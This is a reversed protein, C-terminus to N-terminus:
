SVREVLRVGPEVVDLEQNLAALVEVFPRHSEILKANSVGPDLPEIVGRVRHDRETIRVVDLELEEPSRRTLVVRIDV